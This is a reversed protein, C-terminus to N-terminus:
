INHSTGRGNPEVGIIRDVLTKCAGPDVGKSIPVRGHARMVAGALGDSVCKAHVVTPRSRGPCVFQFVMLRSTGKPVAAKCVRCKARGTPAIGAAYWDPRTKFGHLM